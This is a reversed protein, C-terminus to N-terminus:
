NAINFYIITLLKHILMDGYDANFDSFLICLLLVYGVIRLFVPEDTDCDVILFILSHRSAFINFM